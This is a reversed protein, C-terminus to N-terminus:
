ARDPLEGPLIPAGERFKKKNVREAQDYRNRVPVGIYAGVTLSNNAFTLPLSIKERTTTRDENAVLLHLSKYQVAQGKDNTFTGDRVELLEGFCYEGNLKPM